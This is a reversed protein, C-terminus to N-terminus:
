ADRSLMGTSLSFLHPIAARVQSNLPRQGLNPRMASHKCDGTQEEGHMDDNACGKRNRAFLRLGSRGKRHRTLILGPFALLTGTAKAEV